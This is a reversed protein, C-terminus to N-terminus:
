LHHGKWGNYAIMLETACHTTCADKGTTHNDVRLTLAARLTPQLRPHEPANARRGKRHHQRTLACRSSNVGEVSPITLVTASHMSVGISTSLRVNCVQEEVGKRLLPVELIATCSAHSCANQCQAKTETVATTTLKVNPILPAPSM